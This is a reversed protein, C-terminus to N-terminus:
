PRKWEPKIRISDGTNELNRRFYDELRAALQQPNEGAAPHFVKGLRLRLRFPPRAFAFLSVGKSLYRGEREILVTQIPAGSKAAILAFGHKFANVSETRTRTGEPFILLNEGRAIKRVGERVLTPGSDNTVYGALRAAGGLCPSRMLGSRMICAGHPLISLLIVADVISPHNPAVVVGNLGGLRGAEPFVIEFVGMRVSCRLWFRFLGGIMRRATEPSIASGFVRSALACVPSVALGISFFLVVSAATRLYGWWARPSFVPSDGSGDFAPPSEARASSM